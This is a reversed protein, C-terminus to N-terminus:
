KTEINFSSMLCGVPLKVHGPVNRSSLFQGLGGKGGPKASSCKEVYNLEVRKGVEAFAADLEPHLEATRTAAKIYDHLARIRPEGIPLKALRIKTWEPDQGAHRALREVYDPYDYYDLGLSLRKPDAPADQQTYLRVLMRSVDAVQDAQPRTKDWKVFLRRGKSRYDLAPRKKDKLHVDVFTEYTEERVEVVIDDAPKQPTAQLPPEAPLEGGTDASPKVPQPQKGPQDQEQTSCALVLAMALLVTCIYPLKSM